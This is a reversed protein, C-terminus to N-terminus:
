AGSCISIEGPALALRIERRSDLREFSLDARQLGCESRHFGLQCIDTHHLALDVAEGARMEDNLAAVEM